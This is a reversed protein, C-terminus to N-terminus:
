SDRFDRAEKGFANSGGRAFDAWTIGVRGRGEFSGANQSRMETLANRHACETLACSSFNEHTKPGFQSGQGARSSERPPSEFGKIVKKRQIRGERTWYRIGAEYGECISLDTLRAGHRRTAGGGEDTGNVLAGGASSEEDEVLVTFDNRQMLKFELLHIGVGPLDFDLNRGSQGGEGTLRVHGPM